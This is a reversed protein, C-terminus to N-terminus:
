MTPTTAQPQLQNDKVYQDFEKKLTDVPKMHDAKEWFDVFLVKKYSEAAGYFDNVEKVSLHIYPEVEKKTMAVQLQIPNNQNKSLLYESLLKDLVTANVGKDRAQTYKDLLVDQSELIYRNGYAVFVDDSQTPTGNIWNLVWDILQNEVWEAQSTLSSLRNMVPQVDLWRGTATENSGTALKTTGWLTSEMSVEADRLDEKYQKWVNLDPSIFGGINPAINPDGERPVKVVRIDTVDNSLPDGKGNCTKCVNKGDKGTGNCTKCKQEFRWNIPFGNQFKYITLISKDRAYDKAREEISFINSMRIETGTKVKPSIIIGPVQGFPHTFTLDIKQIFQGNLKYFRWDTQEDVVRYEMFTLTGVKVQKPTFMLVSCLQGNSQYYHIDDISKYTPYIVQDDKYELFIIGNPDIDGLQFLEESLYQKISKQGKFHSLTEGLKKKVAQSQINNVTSGGHANFVNERPQTIRHFLDRIDKSYKQRAIQRVGPEIGEIKNILEKFDDGTVLAKLTKHTKRAKIVWPEVTEHSKIFAVVEDPTNFKM